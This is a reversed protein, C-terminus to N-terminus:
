IHFRHLHQRVDDVHLLEMLSPLLELLGRDDPDDMFTAIPLANEPQLVWSHPSNDVLICHRMDRGLCTLEKVYNGAHLLCHERYLRTRVSGHKDIQDVVPHAYKQLSATFVVVEFHRGAQELFQELWPRKLVYVTLDGDAIRVPVVFDAADVPKFSSHVLTEARVAAM